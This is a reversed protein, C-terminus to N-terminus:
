GEGRNQKTDKKDAIRLATNSQINAKQIDTQADILKHQDRQDRDRAKTIQQNIDKEKGAQAIQLSINNKKDAKREESAIKEREIQLKEKELQSEPTTGALQDLQQRRKEVIARQNQQLSKQLGDAIRDRICM